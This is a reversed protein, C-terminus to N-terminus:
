HRYLCTAYFEVPAPKLKSGTQGSRGQTVHTSEAAPQILQIQQAEFPPGNPTLLGAGSLM